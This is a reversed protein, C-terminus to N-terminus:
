TEVQAPGLPRGRSRRRRLGLVALMALASLPEVSTCGCGGKPAPEVAVGVLSPASDLAADRVVLSFTLDLVVEAPPATFSPTATDAGDLTVRVGDVQTWQYRLVDGDPDSGSGQLTAREGTKVTVKMGADAVPPRNVDRVTVTMDNSATGGNGDDVTVRFGLAETATVEPTTFTDGNMLTVPPGSTQMWTFTLADGDPDAANGPVLTVQTREDTLVNRTGSLTPPKNACRGRHTVVQTFPTGTLGTFAVDDITWGEREGSDDMGIRWRVWITQNAYQTGLNVTVPTITTRSGRFADQGALPNTTGSRLPGDYTPAIASGPIPVFDYGNTSVELRGGDYYLGQAANAEFVYTHRFTFSLPGSGVQLAPTTLWHSGASAGDRGRVQHNLVSV